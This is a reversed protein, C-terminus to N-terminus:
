SLASISVGCHEISIDLYVDTITEDWTKEAIKEPGVRIRGHNSPRWVLPSYRVDETNVHQCVEELLHIEVNNHPAM